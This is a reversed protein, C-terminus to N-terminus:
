LANRQEEGWDTKSPRSGAKGPKSRGSGNSRNKGRDRKEAEWPQQWEEFGDTHWNQLIGEVYSVKRKGQIVSLKIAQIIWDRPYHDILYLVQDRIIATILGLENQVMTFVENVVHEDRDGERANVVVSCSSLSPISTFSPISPVPSVQTNDLDKSPTDQTDGLHTSTVTQTDGLYTSAVQQTTDLCTSAVDQVADQAPTEEHDDQAPIISAIEKPHPHQYKYWNAVQIYGTGNVEYRVIFGKIALQNLLEDGDCNDYPLIEGRLKKPRDELRGERDAYTWLGAFLLRGLPEIEGLDENKFFGPYLDRKRAM